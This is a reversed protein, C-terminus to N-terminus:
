SRTARAVHGAMLDYVRRTVEEHDGTLNYGHDVGPVVHHEVLAGVADLRGAYAAGEPHLRDLEATVVLAPAIGELHDANDGWVPSALRDARRAPDPIYATDFVESLWPAVVPRRGASPKDKARAVLNLPPYHLVQLAIDPGGHELALRAAGAALSGGASQGGVSVRGWGREPACAWRVVDYVQEVPVPFRQRPALAYSTNVVVVGAHTALYRCWPDDDAPRGMVFGGGHANVHVAPTPPGAPPHYLTAAVEGHRTPVAVEETRAACEPFRPQGPGLGKAATVSALLRAAVDAVRPHSLISM